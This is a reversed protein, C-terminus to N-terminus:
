SVSIVVRLHIILTQANFHSYITVMLLKTQLQILLCRKFNRRDTLVFAHYFANFTNSIKTFRFKLHENQKNSDFSNEMKHDSQQFHIQFIEPRNTSM